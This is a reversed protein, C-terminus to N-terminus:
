LRSGGAAAVEARGGATDGPVAPDDPADADDSEAARDAPTKALAGGATRQVVVAVRGLDVGVHDAELDFASRTQGDVTYERQRLRGVVVVRDGKRLASAAHVALTRWCTVNLFVTNGDKWAENTRDYYRSTTGMRFTTLAAGGATDRQQPDLTLHGVMTLQIDNM